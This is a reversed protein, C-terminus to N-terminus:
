DNFPLLHAAIWEHIVAFRFERIDNDRMMFHFVAEPTADLDFGNLLLFTHVLAFAVRKNGDL